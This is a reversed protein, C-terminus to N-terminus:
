PHKEERFRGNMSPAGIGPIGASGEPDHAEFKYGVHSHTLLYRPNAPDDEIKKRLQRVFTRLYDLEAGYQNGWVSKLLRSHLIPQGAHMMLYHLMAFETPTLHVPQGRKYVQYRIPDLQIDGFHLAVGADQDQASRRRVASRLRASLEGLKFPKTIYDDAGADLALVKDEESILVSLMLVPLRPLALRISRCAEVGGMGPMAMDMLVADFWVSRVLSLAEEGRAAEIVAFGTGGLTIRLARRAATDDDVLLITGQEELITDSNM